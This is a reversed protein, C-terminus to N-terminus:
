HLPGPSGRGRAQSERAGPAGETPRHRGFPGTASRAGWLIRALAWCQVVVLAGSWFASQAEVVWWSGGLLVPGLLATASEATLLHACLATADLKRRSRWWSAASLIQIALAAVHAMTPADTWWEPALQAAIWPLACVLSAEVASGARSHEALVRLACWATLAPYALYLALDLEPILDFTQRILRVSLALALTWEIARHESHRVALHWALALALLHVLTAIM